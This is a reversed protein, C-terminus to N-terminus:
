RYLRYAKMKKSKNWSFRLQADHQSLSLSTQKYLLYYAQHQLSSHSALILLEKGAGWALTNLGHEDTVAVLVAEIVLEVTTPTIVSM